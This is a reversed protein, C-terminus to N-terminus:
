AKRREDYAANIQEIVKEVDMDGYVERGKDHRLMHCAFCLPLTNRDDTKGALTGHGPPAEHHAHVGQVSGCLLCPMSRAYALRAKDRTPLAKPQEKGEVRELHWATPDAVLTPRDKPSPKLSKRCKSRFIGLKERVRWQGDTEYSRREVVEGCGCNCYPVTM